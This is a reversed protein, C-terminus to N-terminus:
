AAWYHEIAQGGRLWAARGDPNTLPQGLEVVLVIVRHQYQMRRGAVVDPSVLREAAATLVAVLLQPGHQEAAM